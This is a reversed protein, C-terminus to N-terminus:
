PNMQQLLALSETAFKRSPLAGPLKNAAAVRRALAFGHANIKTLTRLRTRAAARETFTPHVQRTFNM